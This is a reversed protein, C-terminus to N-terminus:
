ASGSKGKVLMIYTVDAQMYFHTSLLETYLHENEDDNRIGNLTRPYAMEVNSLVSFPVADSSLNDTADRFSVVAEAEPSIVYGIDQLFQKKAADQGKRFLTHIKQYVHKLISRSVNDRFEVGAQLKRKKTRLDQPL